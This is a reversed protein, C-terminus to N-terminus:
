FLKPLTLVSDSLIILLTAGPSNKGFLSVVREYYLPIISLGLFLLILSLFLETSKFTAPVYEEFYKMFFFRLTATLGVFFIFNILILVWYGKSIANYIRFALHFSLLSLILITCFLLLNFWLSQRM